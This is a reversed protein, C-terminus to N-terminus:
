KNKLKKILQTARIRATTEMLDKSIKQWDEGTPDITGSKIQNHHEIEAEEQLDEAKVATDALITISDQLIQIMGGSVFFHEVEDDTMRIEVVGPEIGSLLPAHGPYIGMEGESARLSVFKVSKDFLSQEANVILCRM